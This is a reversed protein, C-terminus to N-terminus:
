EPMQVSGKVDKNIGVTEFLSKSLNEESDATMFKGRTM